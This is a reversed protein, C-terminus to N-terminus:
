PNLQAKLYTVAAELQNDQQARVSEITRPVLMDIEVGANILPDGNLRNALMNTFVFIHELALEHSFNFFDAEFVEGNIGSTPEGLVKLGGSRAFILAHENQSQSERSALVIAPINLPNSAVRITQSLKQVIIDSQNPAGQWFHALTNNRADHQIFWSLVGQWGNWSTPYKRLDLVVAKADSLQAKLDRLEHQEVNYVNVRYINDGLHELINASTPVYRMGSFTFRGELQLPIVTQQIENGDSKKLRYAVPTNSTQYLHNRAVRNLRHLQNKLTTSVRSQLYSQVPEGDIAIIEDGIEINSTNKEETRTIVAKGEVLEFLFPMYYRYPQRDPDPLVISLHNDNLKTFETYIISERLTHSPETCAALLPKLSQSWNVEVQQFYPWFHQIMAWMGSVTAMCIEPQAFSTELQWRGLKSFTDGSLQTQVPLYLPFYLTQQAYAQTTYPHSPLYTQNSLSDYTGSMLSRDYTVQSFPANQKWSTVRTQQALAPLQNQRTTIYPAIQRLLEIGKDARETENTQSLEVISEAIFLPWDSNKVEESPYFYQVSHALTVFDEINEMLAKDFTVSPRPQPTSPLNTKDSPTLPSVGSSTDQNNSDGSSGCAVLCLSVCIFLLQRRM